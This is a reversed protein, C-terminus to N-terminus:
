RAIYNTIKEGYNYMQTKALHIFGNMYQPLIMESSKVMDVRLTENLGEVNVILISDEPAKGTNYNIVLDLTFLSCFAAVMHRGCLSIQTDYDSISFIQNPIIHQLALFQFVLSNATSIGRNGTLPMNPYDKINISDGSKLAAGPAPKSSWTKLFQATAILYMPERNIPIFQFLESPTCDVGLFFDLKNERLMNSLNVTDDLVVSITVKPYLKHFADLLNPLFIKARTANIGFRINGIHGDNLEQLRNTVDKEIADIRKISQYLLEGAVTLKLKPSREFLKSQLKGELRKVHDSLCQQSVFARAAAKTFNMEEVALLFMRYSQNM